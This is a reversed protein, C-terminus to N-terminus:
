IDFHRSKARLSLVSLFLWSCYPVTLTELDISTVWSRFNVSLTLDRVEYLVYKSKPLFWVHYHVANGKSSYNLKQFNGLVKERDRSKCLPNNKHDWSSSFIIDRWNKIKKNLTWFCPLRWSSEHTSPSTQIRQPSRENNAKFIGYTEKAWDGLAREHLYM